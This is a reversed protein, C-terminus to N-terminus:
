FTPVAQTSPLFSTGTEITVPPYCGQNSTSIPKKTAEITVPQYCGQNSPLFSTRTEITVPPYCGSFLMTRTPFPPFLRLVSILFHYKM